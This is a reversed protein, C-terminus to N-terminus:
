GQRVADRFRNIATVGDTLPLFGKPPEKEPSVKANVLTPGPAHLITELMWELADPTTVTETQKFGCGKAVSALDVGAATATAQGGTELYVENDLVVISLNTLNAAAATALCGLSMLIEGDGCIALVRERPRALALGMAFPAAQGMTGMLYFNKPHDGVAVVDWSPTGLSSVVLVDEARSELLAAVVKRRNLM